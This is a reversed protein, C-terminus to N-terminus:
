YKKNKEPPIVIEEVNRSNDTLVPNPKVIKDAIKNGIFEATGEATKHVVKIFAAKEADLGTKTATGM